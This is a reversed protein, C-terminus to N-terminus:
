LLDFIASIFLGFTCAFFFRLSVGRFRFVCMMLTLTVASSFSRIAYAQLQRKYVDLHTYSVPEAVQWGSSLLKDPRVAETVLKLFFEHKGGQFFIGLALGNDEVAQRKYVDLRCFEQGM